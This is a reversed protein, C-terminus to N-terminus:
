SKLLISEPNHNEAFIRGLQKKDNYMSMIPLVFRPITKDCIEILVEGTKERNKQVPIYEGIGEHISFNDKAYVGMAEEPRESLTDISIREQPIRWVQVSLM